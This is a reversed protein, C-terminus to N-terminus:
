LPCDWPCTEHNENKGCKGNCNCYKGQEVCEECDPDNEPTCDPGCCGDTSGCFPWTNQCVRSVCEDTTCPEGDDCDENTQCGCDVPCDQSTEGWYDECVLNGCCWRKNPNGKKKKPCDAPCTNCDEGYTHGACYGDGCTTPCDNDNNINCGAPCCGDDDICEQTVDQHDCYASCTGPNYCTDTTCENSDNCDADASCAPAVCQGSCCIGEPCDEDVSCVSDDKWYARVDYKGSGASANRVVAFLHTANHTIGNTTSGTSFFFNDYTGDALYRFVGKATSDTVWFYTGDFTVGRSNNNNTHLSFKWNDYTEHATYRYVEENDASTVWFYTGNFTLGNASGTQEAIDFSTDYTGDAFHRYVRDKTYDVYWFYTGNFVIGNIATQEGAFTWGDYHGTANYRWVDDLTATTVWFHTGNFDVGSAYTDETTADFSWGTYDGAYHENGTEGLWGPATNAYFPSDANLESNENSEVFISNSGFLLLAVAIVLTLGFILRTNVKGDGNM